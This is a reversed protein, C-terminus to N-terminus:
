MTNYLIYMMSMVFCLFLHFLFLSISNDNYLNHDHIPREMLFSFPMVHSSLSLSRQEYVVMCRILQFTHSYHQLSVFVDPCSLIEDVFLHVWMLQKVQQYSMNKFANTLWQRWLREYCFLVVGDYHKNHFWHIIYVIFVVGGVLIVFLVHFLKHHCSIIIIIIWRYEEVCTDNGGFLL